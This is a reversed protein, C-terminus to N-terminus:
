TIARINEDAHYNAAISSKITNDIDTLTVAHNSSTQLIACLCSANIKTSPYCSTADPGIHHKGLTHKISFQYMLSREKYNLLRPNTIKELPQDGFITVLPKHDVSILLKPCGLVFMQCSKLAYILTLAEGKLPAYQSEAETTFQSGTFVLKWHGERCESGQTTPCSCHQQHLFFGIRTKSWDSSICTPRDLKISKVGEIILDVIKWKSEEFIQDLSSDWYFKRNKSSLLERFPAMIDAQAFSYAVQNVLGFWSCIGTIDTPTPFNAIADTMASTPKVRDDTITFGGFDVEDKGFVFKNPNFIISNQACHSIYELTHWFSSAIYSDCLITDDIIRTKCPMDVTIDDFCRTYADESAQFGMPAHLYRYRGWETIFTTADRTKPSLPLSHYGNWADLVTKKMHPPVTSVQNFPSPTHHIERPTTQNLKQLDM